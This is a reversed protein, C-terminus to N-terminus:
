YFICHHPSSYPGFSPNYYAIKGIKQLTTLSAEIALKLLHEKQFENDFHISDLKSSFNEKLSVYLQNKENFVLTRMSLLQPYSVPAKSKKENTQLHENILKLSMNCLEPFIEELAETPVTFDTDPTPRKIQFLEQQEPTFRALTNLLEIDKPSKIVPLDQLCSDLRKMMSAGAADKDELALTSLQRFSNAPTIQNREAFERHAGYVKQFYDLILKQEKKFTEIHQEIAPYFERATSLIEEFHYPFFRICQKCATVIHESSKTSPRKLDELDVLGIKGQGEKDLYLIANDYRPISTDCLCKWFDNTQGSLDALTAQCLFSTLEIAAKTFCERRETYLGIQTKQEPEELIPLRSEILFDGSIRAEPIVLCSYNNAKCIEKAEIMKQLREKGKDDTQKLVVPLSPVFAVLTKGSNARPLKKIESPNLLSIAAKFVGFSLVRESSLSQIKYDRYAKLITKVATKKNEQIIRDVSEKKKAIYNRFVKQIKKAAYTTKIQELLEKKQENVILLLPPPENQIIVSVTRSSVLNEQERNAFIPFLNFFSIQSALSICISRVQSSLCSSAYQLVSNIM